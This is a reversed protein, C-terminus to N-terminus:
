LVLEALPFTLKQQWIEHPGHDIKSLRMVRNTLCDENRRSIASPHLIM